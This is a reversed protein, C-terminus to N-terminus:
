DIKAPEVGWIVVGIVKGQTNILPLSVQQLEKNSSKDLKLDGVFLGGKGENFCKKWKDKDGHWYNSTIGTMGVNASQADKVFCEDLGKTAAEIKKLEKACDNDKLEKQIAMEDEAAAWDKDIKKIQDLPVNKANQADTAKVIVENTCQPLLKALAFDKVKQSMAKNDQIQQRLSDIMAKSPPDGAMGRPASLGIILTLVIVMLSERRFM